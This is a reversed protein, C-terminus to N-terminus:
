QLAQPDLDKFKKLVEYRLDGDQKYRVVVANTKALKHLRKTGKDITLPVPMLKLITGATDPILHVVKAAPADTNTTTVPIKTVTDAQVSYPEGNIWLQIPAVPAKSAIALYITYHFLEPAQKEIFKGNEDIDGAKQAGPSIHQRFGYLTVAKSQANVIAFTLLLLGTLIVQKMYVQRLFCRWQM